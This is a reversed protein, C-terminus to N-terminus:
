VLSWRGEDSRLPLPPLPLRLPPLAFASAFTPPACRGVGGNDASYVMILNDWMQKEHLAAVLEGMYVDARWVMGRYVSETPDGPAKDYPTHVAQFCLHLYFPTSSSPHQEVAQLGLAGWLDTSYENTCAASGLPPAPPPAPGTSMIGATSNPQASPCSEADVSGAKLHCGDTTEWPHLVWHTCGALGACAACCAAESTSGPLKQLASGCQLNTNALITANCASAETPTDPSGLGCLQGGRAADAGPKNSFQSDAYIPHDNQWRMSHSPGSYASGTQFSGITTNFGHNIGLHNMSQFGTHWKGFWHGLYGARALKDSVWSMRLDIDDTTDGSLQEGHHIPLRGTLFSRRTPSCHWHVYHNTLIIGQQALATINKTFAAAAPNHIGTDYWGLDDQLVSIIHPKAGASPVALACCPLAAAFLLCRAM